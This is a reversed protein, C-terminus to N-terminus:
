SSGARCSTRSFSRPRTSGTMLSTAGSRRHGPVMGGPKAPGGTGTVPMGGIPHHDGGTRARRTPLSIEAMLNRRPMATNLFGRVPRLENKMKRTSLTRGTESPARSGWTRRATSGSYRSSSQNPKGPLLRALSQRTRAYMESKRTIYEGMSEGRKRKGQKFYRTLYDTM